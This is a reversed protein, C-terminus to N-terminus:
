PAVQNITPQAELSLLCDRHSTREIKLLKYRTLVSQPAICRRVTKFGIEYGSSLGMATYAEESLDGAVM